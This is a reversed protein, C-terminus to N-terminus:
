YNVNLYEVEWADFYRKNELTEVIENTKVRTEKLDTSINVYDATKGIKEGISAVEGVLGTAPDSGEAAKGVISEVETLRRSASSLDQSIQVAENKAAVAADKASIADNKAAVATNSSSTATNSAAVILASEAVLNGIQNEREAKEGELVRVRGDISGGQSEVASLRLVYGQRESSFNDMQTLMDVIFQKITPDAAIDLEVQSKDGVLQIGNILPKNGLKNYDLVGNTLCTGMATNLQNVAAVLQNIIAFIDRWSM